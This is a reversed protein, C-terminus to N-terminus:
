MTSQGIELNGLKDLYRRPCLRTGSDRLRSDSRADQTSPSQVQLREDTAHIRGAVHRESARQKGKRSGRLRTGTSAGEQARTM